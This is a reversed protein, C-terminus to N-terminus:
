TMPWTSAAPGIARSRTRSCTWPKTASSRPRPQGRQRRRHGLGHPRRKRPLHPRRGAPARRVRTRARRARNATPAPAPTLLQCRSTITPLLNETSRALVLLVATDAPEELTKLLADQAQPRANQFDDLIAVRFRAEYPRLSLKTTVERVQEIKLAGTKEDLQSLVMDPHNGSMIIKAARDDYDINGPDDPAPSNLAMAFTYALTRKGIGDIGTILYAHRTRDNQIAKRLHNVAWDHGYVLWNHPTENTNTM